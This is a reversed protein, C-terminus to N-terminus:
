SCTYFFVYPNALSLSCNRGLLLVAIIGGISSFVKTPSDHNSTSQSGAVNEEDSARCNGVDQSSADNHSISDYLPGSNATRGEANLPTSEDVRM